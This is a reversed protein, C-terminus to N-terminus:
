DGEKVMEDLREFGQELERMRQGVRRRVETATAEDGEMAARYAKRLADLAEQAAQRDAEAYVTKKETEEVAIEFEDQATAYLETLDEILADADPSSTPSNPTSNPSETSSSLSRSTLQTPLATHSASRRQQKQHLQPAARSHNSTARLATNFHSILSYNRPTSVSRQRLCSSISTVVLRQTNM